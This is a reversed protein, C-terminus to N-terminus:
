FRQKKARFVSVFIDKIKSQKMYRNMMRLFSKSLEKEAVAKNKEHYAKAYRYLESNPSMAASIKGHWTDQLLFARGLNKIKGDKVCRFAAFHCPYKFRALDKLSIHVGNQAAFDKFRLRAQNLEHVSLFDFGYTAWVYGGRAEANNKGRSHAEITMVANEPAVNEEKAFDRLFRYHKEIFCRVFGDKKSDEKDKRYISLLNMELRDDDLCIDESVYYSKAVQSYVADLALIKGFGFKDYVLQARSYKPQYGSETTNLPWTNEDQTNISEFFSELDAFSSKKCGLLSAGWIHEAINM